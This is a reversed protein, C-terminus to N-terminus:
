FRPLPRSSDLQQVYRGLAVREFRQYLDFIEDRSGSDGRDAFIDLSAGYAILQGWEQLSPIDTGDLLETPNIFGDLRIKYVQDPIPRLTFTFHDQYPDTWFLIGQPTNAQLAVYNIVINSGISPAVPFTTSYSGTQYNISGVTPFTIPTGDTALNLFEGTGLPAIGDDVQTQIDGDTIYVTQMAIPQAQTVGSFSFTNGDGTGVPDQAYQAPWDKWFINPDQYYAVPNGNAWANPQNTLFQGRFEYVDQFPITYFDYFKLQIQTKLEFPMIYKYYNNIYDIIQNDTLQDVSPAGVINRVKSIINSLTWGSAM